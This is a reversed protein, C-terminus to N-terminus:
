PCLTRLAEEPLAESAWTTLKVPLIGTVLFLKL